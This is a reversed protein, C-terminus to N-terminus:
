SQKKHEQFFRELMRSLESISAPKTLFAAAGLRRAEEAYSKESSTSFMIVPIHELREQKKIEALCQLGNLRPMNLDLFIYDPLKKGENLHDLAELGNSAFMCDCAHGLDEMAISFIEQDDADDDVILCSFVDSM